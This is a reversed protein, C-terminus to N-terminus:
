ENVQQYIALAGSHNGASMLARMEEMEKEEAELVLPVVELEGKETVYWVKHNINKAM